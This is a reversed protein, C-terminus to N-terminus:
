SQPTIRVTLKAGVVSFTLTSTDTTDRGVGVILLEDAACGTMTLSTQAFEFQQNATGPSVVTITQAANFTPNLIDESTAVCITKVTLKVSQSTGNVFARAAFDVNGTYGTPLRFHFYAVSDAANAYDLAGFRWSTGYCASTPAGSTPLDWAEGSTANNCGAAPFWFERAPAAIPILSLSAFYDTGNSWVRASSPATASSAPLIITSTGGNLNQGSRAITVVGTGYNLVDIYQGNAPQTGSAVLTITFTGSAVIIPKLNSFDSALVQYTSIQANTAGSASCWLGSNSLDACAASAGSSIRGDPLVTVKTYTGSTVGTNALARSFPRWRSSLGDYRLAMAVDPGLVVDATLLFRNAATSSTAQNKLTINNPSGINVILVIRGDSPSSAGCQLGNIARDGAGGDIRLIVSTSCNTPNYDDVNGTLAPPTLTGSLTHAGRFLGASYDSEIAKLEAAAQNFQGAIFYGSVLKTNSLSSHAAASSGDLGRGDTNPCSSKGVSIHTSDTIACVMMFESDINLITQTVLGITTGLVIGSTTSSTIDAGLTTQFRNVQPPLNVDAVVGGPFVATNPNQALCVVSLLFFILRKM